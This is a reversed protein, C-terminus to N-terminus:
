PTLGPHAIQADAWRLRVDNMQLKRIVEQFLARATTAKDINEEWLAIEEVLGYIYADPAKHLLWNAPNDETLPPICGYYHLFIKETSLPFVCISDATIIYGKKKNLSISLPLHDLKQGKHDQLFRMEIYDDPLTVSGDVLSLARHKEMERLRLERNIKVEVRHLFEKFLCSFGNKDAYHGADVFLSIYDQAM